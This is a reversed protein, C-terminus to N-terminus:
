LCHAGSHALTRHSAFLDLLSRGVRTIEDVTAPLQGHSSDLGGPVRAADPIAAKISGGLKLIRLTEIEAHDVVHVPLRANALRRLLEIPQPYPGSATRYSNNM